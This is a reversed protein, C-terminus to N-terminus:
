FGWKARLFAVNNMRTAVPHTAQCLVLEGLAWNANEGGAANGGVVFYANNPYTVTRDTGDAILTTNRYLQRDETTYTLVQVGGVATGLNPSDTDIRLNYSTGSSALFVCWRFFPSTHTTTHTYGCLVDDGAVTDVVCVLYMTVRAADPMAGATDDYFLWDNVGDFDILNLGGQSRTGTAPQSAGAAQGINFGNGTLDDLLTVGTAVHISSAVSADYHAFIAAYDAALEEAPAEEAALVEFEDRYWCIRCFGDAGWLGTVDDLLVATGASTVEWFGSSGGGGGGTESGGGGGYLGGGGGGGESIAGGTPVSPYGTGGVGIVGATAALAATGGGLAGAAGGATQTGGKGFATPFAGLDFHGDEGNPYGGHGGRMFQDGSSPGGGGGAVVLRDTLAYPQRRVDTAGGGSLGTDNAIGGRGGGGFIPNTATSLGGRGVNVQLTERPFVPTLVAIYGGLGPGFQQTAGGGGAAGFCEIRAWHIGAPVRVTQAIGSVGGSLFSFSQCGAGGGISETTTEVQVARPQWIKTRGRLNM